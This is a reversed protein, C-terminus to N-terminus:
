AKSKVFSIVAQNFQNPQEVNVVHGCNEIVFLESSRYHKEVVQRVSPLFMYDEEGMVYLTPINIEVQRFWKLIPNIEATLKFWKIFEKQYLKKAENIFLIRSQKHNKKPMIVFAFFKYLVLYPLVYKFINGVRMLIQSRFNMKLIAGGMIMSKVRTPHIEALQRIVITGLSIGVFHSNEIKLHDIVEIVDQAISKFTYKKQFGDKLSPKSQGHGRLDLLLVNFHKQFERIQKFWISSSGGAGHVFTVWETSSENQYINYSILRQNIKSLHVM